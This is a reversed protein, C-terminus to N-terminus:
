LHVKADLHIQSNLYSHNPILAPIFDVSNVIGGFDYEAVARVYGGIGLAYNGETDTLVFRPAQPDHVHPLQSANMVEILEDGAEDVSVLVISNPIEDAVTLLNQANLPLVVSALGVLALLFTRKKKM